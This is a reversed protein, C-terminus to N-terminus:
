GLIQEVPKDGTSPSDPKPEDHDPKEKFKIQQKKPDYIFRPHDAYLNKIEIGTGYMCFRYYGETFEATGVEFAEMHRRLDFPRFNPSSPNAMEEYSIKEGVTQIGAEAKIKEVDLISTKNPELKVPITDVIIRKAFGSFAKDIETQRMLRYEGIDFKLQRIRNIAMDAVDMGHVFIDENQFFDDLKKLVDLTAHHDVREQQAIEQLSGCQGAWYNIVEQCTADACHEIKTM